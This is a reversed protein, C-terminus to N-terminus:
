VRGGHAEFAQIQAPNKLPRYQGPDVRFTGIKKHLLVLENLAPSIFFASNVRADKRIMNKVAEVFMKGSKFWYMGAVAHSSIPNKEAAEVVEDNQTLRVFAYRPHLSKFIVVGADCEDTRFNSVINSLSADLIENTSLIVLEDANDIEESALLSTCAAGMTTDHVPHAIANPHMQSVMNRLHYKSVDANSFMCIIKAPNLKACNDILSQIIPVGEYESLYDPFESDARALDSKAGALLIINLNNSM